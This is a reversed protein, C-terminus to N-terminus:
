VGPIVVTDDDPGDPIHMNPVRKLVRRVEVVQNSFDAVGGVHVPDPAPVVNLTVEFPLFMTANIVIEYGRFLLNVLEDPEEIYNRILAEAEDPSVVVM